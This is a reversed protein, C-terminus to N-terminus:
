KFGWPKGGGVVFAVVVVEEMGDVCVIGVIGVVGSQILHIPGYDHTTIRRSYSVRGTGPM